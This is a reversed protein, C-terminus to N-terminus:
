ELLNNKGGGHIRPFLDLHQVAQAMGDVVGEIEAVGFAFVEFPEQAPDHLRIAERIKPPTCPHRALRHPGRLVGRENVPRQIDTLIDM